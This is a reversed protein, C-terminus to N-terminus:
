AHAEEEADSLDEAILEAYLGPKAALEAHSGRAVIRGRDLVLIEDCDRLTSLRHAIILCTCGRERLNRDIRRETRADLASFAEDLILVAPDRVLARAIELRQRQGGSLSMGGELLTADLGRPLALVDELLESDALARLLEAESVSRDWLTLNERVTGSFLVVEQEVMSLSQALVAEPIEQRSRGDLRIEGSWPAYLGAVLRAVTSKGSGSAGVLAIRQGPAIALSFDDILPPDTPSYGFTLGEVGVAGRLRTAEFEAPRAGKSAEDAPEALVDELQALDSLVAQLSAGLSALGNIPGLFSGVMTQFAVLIGMTLHGEMVRAGGVVVVTAAALSSLLSPIVRVSTELAALHQTAKLARAHHGAWRTFFIGESASAKLTEIAQFGALGIGALEGQEQALRMNATVRLHGIWALVLLNLLGAAFVVGSLLPDYVLMMAGYFVIMLLDIATTALRGSLLTALRSNISFRIAISGPFRQAYYSLPLNLLHRLFGRSMRAALATKLRNLYYRRLQTLVGTLLAIALMGILLPNVWEARQQVLVHDVFIRTTLPVALGPVVLLAGLLILLLLARRASKLRGYLSAIVGLGSGGKQFDAGPQLLVVLGTYGEEFEALSLRRRGRAPDNVHVTGKRFGEVVLFHTFNWFVIQPVQLEKLRAAELHFAKAMLGYRRAAKLMSSASNGNRSVGCEARLEGPPVRRGFYALVIGLAVAGCEVAELQLRLPTRALRAPARFPTRPRTSRM